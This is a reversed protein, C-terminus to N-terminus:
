AKANFKFVFVSTAAGPPTVISEVEYRPDARKTVDIWDQETREKANVVTMMQMSKGTAMREIWNPGQGSEPMIFDAIIVRAGDRLGPVLNALIKVAYKDSWDHLISRVLYVDGDNRIEPKLIDHPEFKVRSTLDSPVNTNFTKELQPFDQVVFNLNPFAKALEISVHGGSGGVDVVKGGNGLSNWDFATHLFDHHHASSAAIVKMANAFRKMRWGKDAGEGDNAIFDWYTKDQDFKYALGIACEGPEESDGYRRLAEALQVDAPWVEDLNFTYWDRLLPTKLFQASPATHAVYGPRSERFVRFTMCHRIIRHIRYEPLGLSKAIDAFSIDGELPVLEPINFETIVKLAGLDHKIVDAYKTIHDFPGAALDQMAQTADVLAKRTRHIQEYEKGVPYSNPANADFSPQSLGADRILKTLTHTLNLIEESFGELTQTSM